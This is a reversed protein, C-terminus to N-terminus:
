VGVGVFAAFEIKARAILIAHPYFISRREHVPISTYTQTSMNNIPVNEELLIEVGFLSSFEVEIIM